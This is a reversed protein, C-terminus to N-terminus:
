MNYDCGTSARRRKISRMASEFLKTNDELWGDFRFVNKLGGCFDSLNLLSTPFYINFMPVAVYLGTDTLRVSIVQACLV